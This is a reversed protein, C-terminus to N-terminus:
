TLSDGRGFLRVAGGAMIFQYPARDDMGGHPHATNGAMSAHVCSFKWMGELAFGFPERGFRRFEAVGAMVLLLNDAHGVYVRRYFAAHAQATM